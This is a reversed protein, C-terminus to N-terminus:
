RTAKFGQQKAFDYLDTTWDATYDDLWQKFSIEPKTRLAYSQVIGLPFSLHALNETEIEENTFLGTSDAYVSIDIM